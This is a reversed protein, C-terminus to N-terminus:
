KGELQPLLRAKIAKEAEADPAAEWKKQAAANFFYVKTGKYDVSPSDPAVITKPNFPCFRQKLLEVKDLGLEAEKGKLQPLLGQEIGAKIYYKENKVWLKECKGCCLGVAVGAVQVTHDTEIAEDTMM